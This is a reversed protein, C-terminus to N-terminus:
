WGVAPAAPQASTAQSSDPSSSAFSLVRRATWFADQWYDTHLSSVTVGRNTSVHAFQGDALYFGIHRTKRGTKFLVLDGARLEAQSLATGSHVQQRTSRPLSVDFVDDYVHRVFASCDIGDRTAGGLQHPTGEWTEVESRLAREVQHETHTPTETRSASGTSGCGTLLLATVLIATSVHQRM